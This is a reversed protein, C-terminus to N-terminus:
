SITVAVGCSPCVQAPINTGFRTQCADCSYLNSARDPTNFTLGDVQLPAGSGTLRERIGKAFEDRAANGYTSSTFLKAEEGKSCIPCFVEEDRCINKWDETHVYFKASCETSFCEHEIMGDANANITGTAHSGNELDNQLGHLRNLLDNITGM